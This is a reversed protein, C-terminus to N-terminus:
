SIKIKGTVAENIIIQKRERLGSVLGHIKSITTDIEECKSELYDSISKQEEIPPILMIMREFVNQYLHQITTGTNTYLNYDKLVGSSLYWYLFDQTFIGSHKQKMVFIGSNLCAPKDMGIVKAIKGITGDKTILLDGNRLQIYPDEDYRQKDIQYCKSWDISAANFDQGTVLYAYSTEKFEESRLGNWGIRGKLSLHNKLKCTEWHKPISGIYDVGSSKMSVDSNLGQTVAKQIIIRKRENLLDIMKQQQAIATDIEATKADLHRAIALQEEIPPIYLPLNKIDVWSLSQRLGGGYRYIEKTIDWAHLLYHMFDPSYRPNVVLGLYAETIIGYDKSIATRLSVKDNQLDTCRIIIYNPHVIQYTNYETPVLGENINKKIVIKGYSLSLVTNCQLGSNIEQNEQFIARGKMFTWHSPVKGIWEEGSDKYKEYVEM